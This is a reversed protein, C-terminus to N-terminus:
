KLDLVSMYTYGYMYRASILARNVDNGEALIVNAFLFKARLVRVRRILGATHTHTHIHAHARAHTYRGVITPLYVFYRICHNIIFTSSVVNNCLFDQFKMLMTFLRSQVNNYM